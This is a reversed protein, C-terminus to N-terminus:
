GLLESATQVIRLNLMQCLFGTMTRLCQYLFSLEEFELPLPLHHCVQMQLRHRHDGLTAM